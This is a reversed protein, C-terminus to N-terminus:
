PYFGNMALFDTVTWHPGSRQRSDVRTAAAHTDLFLLNHTSFQRHWGEGQVSEELFFYLPAEMYLVVKSPSSKPPLNPYPSEGFMNLYYSNGCTRYINAGGILADSWPTPRDSPCRFVPTPSDLNAKPYLYRTLPRVRTEAGPEADPDEDPEADPSAPHIWEARRGGWHCTTLVTVKRGDDGTGFALRDAPGVPLRGRHNDRYITTAQGIQGLNSLCVVTRAQERARRLSPLLIAILLVIISVVVLLEVLTFAHISRNGRRANVSTERPASDM